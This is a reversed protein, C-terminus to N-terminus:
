SRAARGPGLRLGRIVLVAVGLLILLLGGWRLMAELWGALRPPDNFAVVRRALDQKGTKTTGARTDTWVALARKDTSLLGLRSGLDPMGRESGFGVRSSFPRDSLRVRGAFSKGQDYSSQLSTHNLVNTRDGRRDYYVVDLRGDPSAALKPLYQATRDRRRTDNVRVAGDWKKSDKPLSRLWVDPDGLRADQFATFVRGSAPDVAVSPSPPTFVIFRESPTVSPEAVSEEWSSGRDRSRAVVLQWRGDYPAGGRGRHAGEYDLRDQGLDLYAVYLEGGPGVAPSPAVVRLRTPKSVQMPRTWTRGGNESRVSMIPNGTETFKYLGVDSAKLWTVYLRRPREPDATLRAQFPLKGLPTRIPESLTKGGDRSTALFAANPANARGKLTVFLLYLTGDPGFAVDPAFCKPEERAPAPIPTQNWNGGGDFSVNLTCSYRPSDVRDAVVLNAPNRPNRELSPSNHASLDLANGAGENVPLNRGLPEAKRPKDFSTSVLVAGAGLLALALGILIWM